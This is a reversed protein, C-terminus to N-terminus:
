WKIIMMVFILPPTLICPHVPRTTIRVPATCFMSTFVQPQAVISTCGKAIRLSGEKSNEFSDTRGRRCKARACVVLRGNDAPVYESVIHLVGLSSGDDMGATGVMCLMGRRNRRRNRRGIRSTGRSHDRSSQTCCERRCRMEALLCCCPWDSRMGCCARPLDCLAVLACKSGHATDSCTRPSNEQFESRNGRLATLGRTGLPGPAGRPAHEVTTKPPQALARAKHGVDLRM